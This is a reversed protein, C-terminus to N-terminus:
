RKEHHAAGKIVEGCLRKIIPSQSSHFTRQVQLLLDKPLTPVDSMRRLHNLTACRVLDSPHNIGRSYSDHYRPDQAIMRRFSGPPLGGLLHVSTRLLWGRAFDGPSAGSAILRPEIERFAKEFDNGTSFITAFALASRSYCQKPLTHDLEDLISASQIPDSVTRLSLGLLMIAFWKNMEAIPVGPRLLKLSREINIEPSDMDDTPLSLRDPNEASKVMLAVAETVISRDIFSAALLLSDRHLFHEMLPLHNAQNHSHPEGFVVFDAVRNDTNRWACHLLRVITRAIRSVVVRCRSLIDRNGLVALIEFVSVDRAALVRDVSETYRKRREKGTDSWPTENFIGANNLANLLQKGNLETVESIVDDFRGLLKRQGRPSLVLELILADSVSKSKLGDLVECIAVGINHLDGQYVPLDARSSGLGSEGNGGCENSDYLARLRRSERTRARSLDIVTWERALFILSTTSQGSYNAEHRLLLDHVKDLVLQEVDYPDGHQACIQHVQRALAMSILRKTGHTEM